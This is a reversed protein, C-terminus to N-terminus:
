VGSDVVVCKNRIGVPIGVVNGLLMLNAAGLNSDATRCGLRTGVITAGPCDIGACREIVHVLGGVRGALKYANAFLSRQGPSNYLIATGIRVVDGNDVALGLCLSGESVLSAVARYHEVSSRYIAKYRVPPFVGRESAVELVNGLAFLSRVVSSVLIDVVVGCNCEIPYHLVVVQSVALSNAGSSDDVAM